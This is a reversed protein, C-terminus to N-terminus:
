LIIRHKGKYKSFKRVSRNKTAASGETAKVKTSRKPEKPSGAKTANDKEGAERKDEAKAQETSHGGTAATGMM